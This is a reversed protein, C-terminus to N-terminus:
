LVIYKDIPALVAKRNVGGRLGLTPEPLAEVAARLQEARDLRVILQTVFYVMDEETKLTRIRDLVARRFDSM